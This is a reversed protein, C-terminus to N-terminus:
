FFKVRWVGAFCVAAFRKLSEGSKRPSGKLVVIRMDGLKIVFIM